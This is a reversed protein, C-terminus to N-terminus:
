VLLCINQESVQKLQLHLKKKQVKLTSNKLRLKEILTDQLLHMGHVPYDGFLCVCLWVSMCAHVHVCVCVYIMMCLASMSLCPHLCSKFLLLLQQVTDVMIILLWMNVCTEITGSSLVPLLCSICTISLVTYNEKFCSFLSSELYQWRGQLEYIYIYMHLCFAITPVTNVPHTPTTCSIYLCSVSYRERYRNM